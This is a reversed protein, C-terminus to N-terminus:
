VSVVNVVFSEVQVEREAEFKVKLKCLTSFVITFGPRDEPNQEWCKRMLQCWGDPAEAARASPVPPRAGGAVAALMQAKDSIHVWPPTHALMEWIIM